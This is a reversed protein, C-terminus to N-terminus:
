VGPRISASACERIIGGLAPVVSGSLTFASIQGVPLFFCILEGARPYYYPLPLVGVVLHPRQHCVTRRALDDLLKTSGHQQLVTGSQGVSLEQLAKQRVSIIAGKGSQHPPM